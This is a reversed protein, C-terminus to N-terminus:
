AIGEIGAKSLRDSVGALEAAYHRWLDISTRYVPRRVQSASATTIPTKADREVTPGHGRELGCFDFIRDVQGVPDLVLSEYSVDLIQGALTRHWHSMLKRYGVYYATLENLDYSFPYGHSFLTKYVAYCTAVPHRTVHVIRSGPLARRILGCYLYNLPMKDTFRSKNGARPRTRALYDRGVAAFDANASASILTQRDLDRRGAARHAGSVVCLAFDALEGAGYVDPHGALLHELLTTGTRPMGVLFIPRGFFEEGRTDFSEPFAECIWDVTRLDAGLDYELKSRRVTAGQALHRWSAEYQGLDEYEKALAFRLPVEQRWDRFGLRVRQELAAVHNRDATQVRLDSRFHWAESDEPRAAIVRDLDEEAGDLDGLFRRVAARNYRFRPDSEDLRVAADYASLAAPYDNISVCFDGVAAEAGPDGAAALRACPLLELAACTGGAALRAAMERLVVTTMRRADPM